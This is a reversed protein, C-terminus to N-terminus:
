WGDDIWFSDIRAGRGTLEDGFLAIAEDLEASDIVESPPKLDLWSQYHLFTRRDHVHEREVYYQFGRRLQGDPVVGVSATYGLTDGPVGARVASCWPSVPVSAAGPAAPNTVRVSASPVVIVPSSRVATPVGTRVSRAGSGSATRQDSRSAPAATLAVYRKSSPVRANSRTHVTERRSPALETWCANSSVFTVPVNSTVASRSTSTDRGPARTSPRSSPLGTTTPSWP